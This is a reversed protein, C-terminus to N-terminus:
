ITSGTYIYRECEAIDQVHICSYYVTYAFYWSSLGTSRIVVATTCWGGDGGGGGGGGTAAGLNQFTPLDSDRMSESNRYRNDEFAGTRANLHVYTCSM